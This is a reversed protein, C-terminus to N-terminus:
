RQVLTQQVLSSPRPSSTMPQCCLRAPMAQISWTYRAVSTGSSPPESTATFTHTSQQRDLTVPDALRKLSALTQKPPVPSSRLREQAIVTPQRPCTSNWRIRSCTTSLSNAMCLVLSRLLRRQEHRLFRGEVLPLSQFPDAPPLVHSCVADLTHLEKKGM